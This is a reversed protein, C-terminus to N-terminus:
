SRIVTDDCTNKGLKLHTIFSFLWNLMLTLQVRLAIPVVNSKINAELSM